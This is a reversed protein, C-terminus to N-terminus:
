MALDSAAGQVMLTEGDAFRRAEIGARAETIEADTLDRFLPTARIAESIDGRM